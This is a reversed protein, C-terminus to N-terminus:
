ILTLEMSVFNGHRAVTQAGKFIMDNSSKKKEILLVMTKKRIRKEEGPGLKQNM